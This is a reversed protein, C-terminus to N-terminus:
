ARSVRRLSGAAFHAVVEIDGEDGRDVRGGVGLFFEVASPRTYYLGDTFKVVVFYPVRLSREWRIGAEVKHASVMYTEYEDHANRRGKIESLAVVRGKRMLAVDIEAFRKMEHGDCRWCECLQRLVARQVARDDNTEYTPRM